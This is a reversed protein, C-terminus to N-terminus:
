IPLSSIGSALLKEVGLQGERLGWTRSTILVTLFYGPGARKQTERIGNLGASGLWGCVSCVEVAELVYWFGVAVLSGRDFTKRWGWGWSDWRKGIVKASWQCSVRQGCNHFRPLSFSSPSGGLHGWRVAKSHWVGKLSECGKFALIFIDMRCINWSHQFIDRLHWISGPYKGSSGSTLLLPPLLLTYSQSGWINITYLLSSLQSASYSLLIVNWTNINVKNFCNWNLVM